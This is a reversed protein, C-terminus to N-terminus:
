RTIPEVLLEMEDVVSRAVIGEAQLRRLVRVTWGQCNETISRADPASPPPESRAIRDVIAVQDQTLNEQLVVFRELSSSTLVDDAVFHQQHMMLADGTVQWVYGRTEGDFGNCATLSWHKPEGEAQNEMALYLQMTSGSPRTAPGGQPADVKSWQGKPGGPKTRRTFVRGDPLEMYERGFAAQRRINQPNQSAASSLSSSPRTGTHLVAPRTPRLEFPQEVPVQRGEHRNSSSCCNGM